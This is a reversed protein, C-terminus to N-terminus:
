GGGRGLKRRRPVIQEPEPRVPATLFTVATRDEVDEVYAGRQPGERGASIVPYPGVVITGTNRGEQVDRAGRRGLRRVRDVIWQTALWFGYVWAAVCGASCTCVLCVITILGVGVLLLLLSHPVVEILTGMVSSSTAILATRGDAIRGLAEPLGFWEAM